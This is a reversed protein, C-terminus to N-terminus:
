LVGPLCKPAMRPHLPAKRVSVQLWGGRLSRADTLLSQAVRMRNGQVRIPCHSIAQPESQVIPSPLPSQNPLPLREGKCAPREERGFLPSGLKEGGPATINGHSGRTFAPPPCSVYLFFLFCFHSTCSRMQSAPMGPQRCTYYGPPFHCILCDM